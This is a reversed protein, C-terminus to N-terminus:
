LGFLGHLFGHSKQQNLSQQILEKPPRKPKAPQQPNTDKQHQKEDNAEVNARSGMLKNELAKSQIGNNPGLKELTKRLQNQLLNREIEIEKLKTEIEEKESTVTSLQQKMSDCNARLEKVMAEDTLLPFQKPEVRSPTASLELALKELQQKMEHIEQKLGDVETEYNATLNALEKSHQEKISVM